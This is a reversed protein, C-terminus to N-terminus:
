QFNNINNNVDNKKTENNYNVNNSMVNNTSVGNNSNNIKKRLSSRILLLFSYLSLLAFFASYIVSDIVAGLGSFNDDTGPNSNFAVVCFFGFLLTLIAYKINIHNNRLGLYLIVFAVLIFIIKIEWITEIVFAPIFGFMLILVKIIVLIGQLFNVIFSIILM